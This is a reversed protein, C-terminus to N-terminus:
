NTKNMNNALELLKDKYNLKPEELVRQFLNEIIQGMEKSPKIGIQKLDNGTINLDKITLPEKKTLIKHVREKVQLIKSFDYPPKTGKVDAIQLTFLDNINDVGVRTILRKIGKDSIKDFWSMHEKVLISVTNITKNDFKLRNLFNKALKESEHQHGYFHGIKNKDLSFTHPKGIDHLLAALRIVLKNPTNELVALTHNFVDKDHHPNHQMFDLSPILEPAIFELLKSDALLKLGKSPYDSILIKCFEDRIREQSINNLLNANKKIAKLTLDEISFNLQCAFRIARLMRLADEQYRRDADGVAKIVKESLDKYGNFFDILGEHSNYALSNITFDRRSLDERLSNTFFVQDPKRNNLYDGDIRYTTVEYSKSDIIISVTGHKLGTPIVKYENFLEIVELPDANTCMDWDMPIKKLLSDRVCGGVVYAEYGNSQLKNLILNASNDIEIM